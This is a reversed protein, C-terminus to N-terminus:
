STCEYVFITEGVLRGRYREHIEFGYNGLEAKVAVLNMETSLSLLVRGNQALHSRLGEAFRRLVKEGRWAYEPWDKPTGEFYPPNFIVLDFREGEVPTFLDGELVRVRDELSNLLVNVKACRVALPSIDVAAVKAGKRAALIACVGTGTGMDLVSSTESLPLKDLVDLLLPTSVFLRPHFVGPLVVLPMDHVSELVLRGHRRGRFLMFLTM